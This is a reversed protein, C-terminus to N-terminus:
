GSTPRIVNGGDLRETHDFWLHGMETNMVATRLREVFERNADPTQWWSGWTLFAAYHQRPGPAISEAGHARPM